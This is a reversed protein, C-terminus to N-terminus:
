LEVEAQDNAAPAIEQSAELSSNETARVREIPRREKVILELSRPPQGDQKAKRVEKLMQKLHAEPDYFRAV